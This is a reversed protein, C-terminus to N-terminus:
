KFLVVFFLFLFYYEGKTPKIWRCCAVLLQHVFKCRNRNAAVITYVCRVGVISLFIRKLVILLHLDHTLHKWLMSSINNEIRSDLVDKIYGSREVILSVGTDYHNNSRITNAVETFKQHLIRSDLSSM